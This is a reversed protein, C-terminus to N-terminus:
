PIYGFSKMLDESISAIKLEQKKTLESKYRGVHFTDIPRKPDTKGIAFGDEDIQAHSLIHHQLISDEWDLDLFKMISELIPKPNQVLYEYKVMKIPFGLKEYELYSTNKYKWYFSGSILDSFNSEKIKSIEWNFRKRFTDSNEIWYKIIPIGWQTMWSTENDKLALMSCVVDRVDRIIFIIPFNQYFNPFPETVFPTNYDFISPQNLQETFRPIKFGIWRHGESNKKIEDLKKSDSLLEYSTPEDISIISSHSELILRLLTTGSRQCGAILFEKPIM